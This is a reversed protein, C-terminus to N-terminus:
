LDRGALGQHKGPPDVQLSVAGDGSPLLWPLLRLRGSPLVVRRLYTRSIAEPHCRLVQEATVGERGTTPRASSVLDQYVLDLVKPTADLVQSMLQLEKAIKNRAMTMFLNMQPNFKQRM